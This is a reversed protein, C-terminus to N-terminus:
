RVKRQEEDECRRMKADKWVGDVKQRLEGRDRDAGGDYHAFRPKMCVTRLM